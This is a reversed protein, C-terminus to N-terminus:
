AQYQPHCYPPQQFYSLHQNLQDQIMSRVLLLFPNQTNDGQLKPVTSQGHCTNEQYPLQFQSGQYNQQHMLHPTQQPTSQYTNSHPQIYEPAEEENSVSTTNAHHLQSAFRNGPNPNMLLDAEQHQQQRNSVKRQKSMENRQIFNEAERVTGKDNLIVGPIQHTFWCKEGRKCNGVVYLHCVGRKIKTFDLNHSKNCHQERCTNPGNRFLTECPEQAPNSRYRNPKNIYKINSKKRQAESIRATDNREEESIAHTFMCKPFPCSGKELIEHCCAGRVKRKSERQPPPTSSKAKRNSGEENQKKTLLINLEKEREYDLNSVALEREQKRKSESLEGITEELSNIQTKAQKLEKNKEAIKEGSKQINEM